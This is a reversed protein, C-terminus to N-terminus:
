LSDIVQGLSLVKILQLKDTPEKLGKSFIRRLAGASAMCISLSPDSLSDFLLPITMPAVTLNIDVWGIQYPTLIIIPLSAGTRLCVQM